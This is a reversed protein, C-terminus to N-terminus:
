SGQVVFYLPVDPNNPNEGEWLLLGEFFSNDQDQLKEQVQNHVKFLLEGQLFFEGNDATLLFDPEIDDEKEESWYSYQVVVQPSGLVKKDKDFEFDEGFIDENYTLLAILFESLSSYAKDKFNWLVDNLLRKPHQM